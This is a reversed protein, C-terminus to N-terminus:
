LRRRRRMVVVFAAVGSLALGTLLVAPVVYSGDAGTICAWAARLRTHLTAQGGAQGVLWESQEDPPM